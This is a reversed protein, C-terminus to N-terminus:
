EAATSRGGVTGTSSTFLDRNELVRSRTLWADHYLVVSDNLLVSKVRSVEGFEM